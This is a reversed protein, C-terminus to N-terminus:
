KEPGSFKALFLERLLAMGISSSPKPGVEAGAQQGRRRRDQAGPRQHYKIEIADRQHTKEGVQEEHGQHTERLVRRLRSVLRNTKIEWGKAWTRMATFTKRSFIERARTSRKLRKGTAEFLTVVGVM